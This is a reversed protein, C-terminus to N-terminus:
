PKVHLRGKDVAYVPGAATVTWDHYGSQTFPGFTVRYLGTGTNDVALTATTGDPQVMEASMSANILVEDEDRIAYDRFLQSGVYLKGVDVCPQTLLM